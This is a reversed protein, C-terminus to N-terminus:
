IGPTAKLNILTNVSQVADYVAVQTVPFATKIAVGAAEAAEYTTYSGKTQRDVQLRYRGTEPRKRKGYLEEAAPEESPQLSAAEKTPLTIKQIAM